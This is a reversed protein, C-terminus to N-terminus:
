NICQFAITWAGTAGTATATPNQVVVAISGAGPTSSAIDVQSSAAVTQAVVWAPCVNTAVVATDTITMTAVGGAAITAQSTFGVQGRTGTCTQTTATGTTQCYSGLSVVGGPQAAYGGAGAANGNLQNILANLTGVIQSPESYTPSSPIPPLGGGFGIASGVIAGLFLGAVLSFTRAKGNM